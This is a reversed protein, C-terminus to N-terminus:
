RSRAYCKCIVNAYAFQAGCVATVSAGAQMGCHLPLLGCELDRRRTTQPDMAILSRIILDPVHSAMALHLPVKGAIDQVGVASPCSGLLPEFIKVAWGGGCEDSPHMGTEESEDDSATAAGDICHMQDSKVATKVAGTMMYHMPGRGDADLVASADPFATVLTLIVEAPVRYIIALHLPTQGRDNIEGCVNGNKKLWTTFM